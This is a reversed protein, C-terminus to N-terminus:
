QNVHHKWLTVLSAAYMYVYCHAANTSGNKSQFFLLIVYETHTDTAQTIWCASPM